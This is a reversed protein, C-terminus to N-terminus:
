VILQLWNIWSLLQWFLPFFWFSKRLNKKWFFESSFGNKNRRFSERVKCFKQKSFLHLTQRRQREDDNERRKEDDTRASTRGIADDVVFVIVVVSNQIKTRRVFVKFIKLSLKVSVLLPRPSSWNKFFLIFFEFKKKRFKKQFFWDKLAFLIDISPQKTAAMVIALIANLRIIGLVIFIWYFLM